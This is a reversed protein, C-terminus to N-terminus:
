GIRGTAHALVLYARGVDSLLYDQGTRGSPDQAEADELLREFDAIYTNVSYQYAPDQRYRNYADDYTLRGEPSYISRVMIGSQGAGLRSWIASATSPDIAGALRRIDIPGAMQTGNEEDLSARKLLDGLSWGDGGTGQQQNPVAGPPPNHPFSRARQERNFTSSLSALEKNPPAPRPAGPPAPLANGARPAPRSVDHQRSQQASLQSLQELARLQDRLTQRMAESGDRATDPLRAIQDRLRQQEQELDSAAKATTRRAEMSAQSVQNTMSTLNSSMEESVSSFKTRLDELARNTDEAAAQKLRQIEDLVARSQQQASSSLEATLMRARQEAESMSGQLQSSYDQFESGIMTARSAMSELTRELEANRNQLTNDIKYNASELANAARLINQGQNEFRATVGHIQSLLNESINKLLESQKSLGEIAQLSQRTISESTRRVAQIGQMLNEDLENAQSSLIHGLQKAHHEMATNLAIAKETVADDIAATSRQISEEFSLLRNTFADDLARTREILQLDLSEARNALSADLARTYEEFVSQIQETRETLTGDMTTRQDEIMTRVRDTRDDLASGLATTYEEFVVQLEQTRSGLAHELNGTQAAIATGLATLNSSAGDIIESLVIQQHSLREILEPVQGGLRQLTDTVSGSTTLLADREGALEGILGRIKRENEGYSRELESVEKHVLAELEGARGLAREVAENMFAVQRRVAQGLSAVQQEAMRDPEALRIAVETMATSRLRLEETRWVLFAMFWILLIPGILTAVVTLMEPRQIVGALSGIRAIEHGFYTLAFGLVIAGWLGSAASAIIFPRNSPRQNLAYILGGISPVDDNAAVRERSPGAPRRRAARRDASQSEETRKGPRQPPPVGISADPGPEQTASQFQPLPAEKDSSSKTEPAAVDAPTPAIKKSEDAPGNAAPLPPPPKAQGTDKSVAPSSVPPLAPLPAEPTVKGDTKGVTEQGEQAEALRGSLSQNKSM